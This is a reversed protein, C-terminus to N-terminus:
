GLFCAVVMLFLLLFLHSTCLPSSFSSKLSVLLQVLLLTRSPVSNRAHFLPRRRQVIAQPLLVASSPRYLLAVKGPSEIFNIEPGSSSPRTPRDFYLLLDIALFFSLRRHSDEAGRTKYQRPKGLVLSYKRKTRGEKRGRIRRGTTLAAASYTHNAGGEQTKVHFWVAVGRRDVNTTATLLRCTGPSSVNRPPVNLIAPCSFLYL